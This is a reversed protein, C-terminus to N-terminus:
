HLTKQDNKQAAPLPLFNHYYYGERPNAGLVVLGTKHNLCQKTSTPNNINVRADKGSILPKGNGPPFHINDIDASKYYIERTRRDPIMRCIVYIQRNEEDVVLISRSPSDAEKDFVRYIEWNDPDLINRGTSCKLLIIEPGIDVKVVAFLAGIGSGTCAALNIHDDTSASYPSVIGWNMGPEEPDEHVALYFGTRRQNSWMVGIRGEFSIVASIDDPSVRALSDINTMEALSFPTAWTHDDGMSHNIMVNGSEVYTIWLRGRSDKALTVSEATGGSIDNVPFGNDLTYTKTDPAYSYRYLRAGQGPAPLGEQTAIHSILYLRTGDWLADARSRNREDVPVQTDLWRHQLSDLQFIHYADGATSWMVGWWLGDNWWLKSQPKSSTPGGDSGTKRPFSIDRYGHKLPQFDDALAQHGGGSFLYFWICGALVILRKHPLSLM